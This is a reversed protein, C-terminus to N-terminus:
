CGVGAQLVAPMEVAASYPSLLYKGFATLKAAGRIEDNLLPTLAVHFDEYLEGIQDLYKAQM